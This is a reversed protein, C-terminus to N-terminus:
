PKSVKLKLNDVTGAYYAKGTASQADDCTLEIRTKATYENGLIDTLTDGEYVEKGDVDYGILQAVSDPDVTCIGQGIVHAVGDPDVTYIGQGIVHIAIRGSYHILDGFVLNGYMASTPRGRFKITKM